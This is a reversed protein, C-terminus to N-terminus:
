TTILKKIQFVFNEVNKPSIAYKKGTLLEILVMKNRNTVYMWVHGIDFFHFLGLYGYLGGSGGLRVVKWTWKGREIKSIQSYPISIDKIIRKIKLEQSNFLFGKPKFLYPVLIVILSIIPIFVAVTVSLFSIPIVVFFLYVFFGSEAILLIWLALTVNKVIGDYNATIFFEESESM